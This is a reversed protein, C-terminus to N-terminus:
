ATGIAVSNVSTLTQVPPTGIGAEARATAESMILDSLEGVTEPLSELSITSFDTLENGAVDVGTYEYRILYSQEFGTGPGTVMNPSQGIMSSDIAQEPNAAALSRTASVIQGASARMQNVDQITIGSLLQQAQAQVEPNNGGEGAPVGLIAAATNTAAERMAQWVESTTAGGFAAGLISGFFALGRPNGSYPGAM